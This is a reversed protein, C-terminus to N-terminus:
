RHNWKWEIGWMFERTSRKANRITHIVEGYIYRVASIVVCIAFFIIAIVLVEMAFIALIMLISNAM